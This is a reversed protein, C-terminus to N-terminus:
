DSRVEVGPLSEVLQMVELISCGIVDNGKILHDSQQSLKTAGGVKAGGLGVKKIKKSKKDTIEHIKVKRKDVFKEYNEISKDSELQDNFEDSDGNSELQIVNKELEERSESPAVSASPAWAHERTAITNVFMIDLKGELEKDIGGKSFKSEEPYM